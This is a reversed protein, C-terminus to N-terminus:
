GSPKSSPPDGPPPATAPEPLLHELGDLHQRALEGFDSDLRVEQLKSVLRQHKAYLQLYLGHSRLKQASEVFLQGAAVLYNGLNCYEDIASHFERKLDMFKSVALDGEVAVEQGLHELAKESDRLVYSRLLKGLIPRWDDISGSRWLQSFQDVLEHASAWANRFPLYVERLRNMTDSSVTPEVAAPPPLEPNPRRALEARLSANEDEAAIARALMDRNLRAPTVILLHCLWTIFMASGTLLAGLLLDRMFSFPPVSAQRRAYALGIAGLNVILGGLLTMLAWWVHSRMFAWAGRWAPHRLERWYNRLHHKGQEDM